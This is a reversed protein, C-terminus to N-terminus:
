PGQPDTVTSNVGQSSQNQVLMHRHIVLSWAMRRTHLNEVHVGRVSWDNAQVETSRGTSGDAGFVLEIDGTEGFGQAPSLTHEYVVVGGIPHM